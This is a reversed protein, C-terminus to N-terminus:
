PCGAVGSFASDGICGLRLLGCLASGVGGPLKCARGDFIQAALFGLGRNVVRRPALGAGSNDPYTM